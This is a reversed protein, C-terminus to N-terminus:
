AHQLGVATKGDIHPADLWPQGGDTMRDHEIRQVGSDTGLESFRVPGCPLESLRHGGEAVDNRKVRLPCAGAGPASEREVPKAIKLARACRAFHPGILRPISQAERPHVVLESTLGIRFGYEGLM